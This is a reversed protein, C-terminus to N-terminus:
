AAVASEDVLDLLLLAESDFVETGRYDYATDCQSCEAFEPLDDPGGTSLLVAHGCFPCDMWLYRPGDDHLDDRSPMIDFGRATITALTEGTSKSVARNLQQQTM